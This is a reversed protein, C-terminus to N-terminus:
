TNEHVNIKLNTNLKQFKPVESVPLPFTLGDINLEKEFKKYHYLRNPNRKAPHLHALVSWIFCKNDTNEVNVVANKNLIHSPTPLFSSGSLPRYLATSVTCKSVYGLLWGSGRENFLDLKNVLQKAIEDLKVEAVDGIIYTDSRFSANNYQM